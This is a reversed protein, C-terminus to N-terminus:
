FAGILQNTSQSLESKEQDRAFRMIEFSILDPIFITRIVKSSEYLIGISDFESIHVEEMSVMASYASSWRDITKIMQWSQGEDKSRYVTMNYRLVDLVNGM